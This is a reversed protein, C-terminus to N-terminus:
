LQFEKRIQRKWTSKEVHRLRRRVRKVNKGYVESCCGWRCECLATARPGSSKKLLVAM